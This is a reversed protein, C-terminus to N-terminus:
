RAAAGEPVAAGGGFGGGRRDRVPLIEMLTMAFRALPNRYVGRMWEFEAMKKALEARTVGKAQLAHLQSAIFEDMFAYRTLALYLEWVGPM